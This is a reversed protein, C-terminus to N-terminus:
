KDFNHCYVFHDEEASEMQPTVSLCKELSYSCHPYYKCGQIDKHNITLFNAKQSGLKRKQAKNIEFNPISSFLHKTYPHPPNNFLDKSRAIEVIKGLYMVVIRTCMYKVVGINHSIFLYTLNYEDKLSQLINLIQAQVSVDLGSTPEDLVIFAPKYALARAIAIRQRQGGSFEHPYRFLTEESLGVHNLFSCVTEKIINKELRGIEILPEKVIDFVTMRPNLSSFPDQFIVSMQKRVSKRDKEKLKNISKDEFVVDGSTPSHLGLILKGLTTKGSGSEGVLGLVEEKRIELDVDDVAKIWKSGGSTERSQFYKKLNNIKILMDM